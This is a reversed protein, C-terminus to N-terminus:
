CTLLPSSGSCKVDSSDSLRQRPSLSARAAAEVDHNVILKRKQSEIVSNRREESGEAIPSLTQTEAAAAGVEEGDAAYLIRTISGVLPLHQTDPNQCLIEVDRLKSFYFDREKELSDIYLKLETIKEDYAPPAPKSQKSSPAARSSHHHNGTNSSPPDHKRTGNSSSPRPAAASSSSSSKGSQQTAAARKTAEKGGKSGERRELAHYSHLQGGNVSDCYKKMWQMFELNDLPRGKVLKSVEIHKTLKLKNFVDQLVKYNQIMEYESKADFNVKHMPVAGPHVSDMLQCHVAGSCAEEVKSLNLHLTSNIWALIESRGVFYASDMIGINAAM